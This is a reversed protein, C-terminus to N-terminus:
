IDEKSAVDSRAMIEYENKYEDLTHPIIVTYPTNNITVIEGVSLEIVKPTVVVLRMETIAMPEGQTHGLYKETLCGPFSITKSENYVPRNLENLIPEGIREVTCIHPEILAATVEYYMRGVGVIDTLFCHKGQWRFANHLTLIKNERITFKVSKAGIGVKSFLNNGSLREAKAWPNSLVDWSYTNETQKLTLISIKDKREGPNM